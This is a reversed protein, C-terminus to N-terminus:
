LPWRRTAEKKPALNQRGAACPAIRNKEHPQGPTRSGRAAQPRQDRRCQGPHKPRRQQFPSNHSGTRSKYRKATAGQLPNENLDRVRGASAVAKAAQATPLALTNGLPWRDRNVVSLRRALVGCSLTGACCTTAPKRSSAAPQCTTPSPRVASEPTQSRTVAYGTGPGALSPVDHCSAKLQLVLM